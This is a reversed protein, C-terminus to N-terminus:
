NYRKGNDNRVREIVTIRLIELTRDCRATYLGLVQNPRFDWEILFVYPHTDTLISARSFLPITLVLVVLVVVISM